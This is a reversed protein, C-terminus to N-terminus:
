DDTPLEGVVVFMAIAGTGVAVPTRGAFGSTQLRSLQRRAMTLSPPKSAVANQAVNVVATTVFGAARGVYAVCHTVSATECILEAQEHTTMPLTPVSVDVDRDLEGIDLVSMTEDTAGLEVSDLVRAEDVVRGAEEELVACTATEVLTERTAFGSTQLRSLQRRAITLSPPTPAVANQAVNVVAITVFGAASGVYAEWHTVSATECILEAQEHTAIPLTPESVEIVEDDIGLEVFDLVMATDVVVGAEEERDVVLVRAGTAVAERGALGNTHLRSLQRRAITRSPPTPAVAKQAVNVVATMVFGAASGVYAEWHTV